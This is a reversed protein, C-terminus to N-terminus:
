DNFITVTDLTGLKETPAYVWQEGDWGDEDYKPHDPTLPKCTILKGTTESKIQFEILRKGVPIGLTSAEACLSRLSKSYSFDRLTYVPAQM